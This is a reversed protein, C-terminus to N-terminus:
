IAVSTLYAFSGDLRWDSVYQFVQPAGSTVAFLGFSFTITAGVFDAPIKQRAAIDVDFAPISYQFDWPTDPTTDDYQPESHLEAAHSQRYYEVLGEPGTV